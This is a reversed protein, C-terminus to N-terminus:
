GANLAVVINLTASLAPHHQKPSRTEVVLYAHQRCAGSTPAGHNQNPPQMAHRLVNQKPPFKLQVGLESREQEVYHLVLSAMSPFSREHGRVRYWATNQGGGGYAIRKILFNKMAAPFKVSLAFAGEESKVGDRTYLAYYGVACVAGLFM